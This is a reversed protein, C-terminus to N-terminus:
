PKKGQAQQRKRKSKNLSVPEPFAERLARAKAALALLQAQKRRALWRSILRGVGFSIAASGIMLFIAIPEM